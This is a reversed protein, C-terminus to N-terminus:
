RPWGGARGLLRELETATRVPEAEGRELVEDRLPGEVVREGDADRVVVAEPRASYATGRRVAADVLAAM